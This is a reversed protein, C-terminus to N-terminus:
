RKREFLYKKHRVVVIKKNSTKQYMVQTKELHDQEM